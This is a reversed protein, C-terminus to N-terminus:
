GCLPSWRWGTRRRRRPSCGDPGGFRVARHRGPGPRRHVPVGGGPGGPAPDAGAGEAGPRHVGRLLGGGRHVRCLLRQGGPGPGPPDPRGPFRLLLGGGHGPLDRVAFLAGAAKKGAGPGGSPRRGQGPGGPRHRVAEDRQRRHADCRHGPRQPRGPRVGGAPGPLRGGRLGHPDAQGRRHAKERRSRGGKPLRGGGAQHLQVGTHARGAPAWGAPAHGEGDRLFVAGAGAARRRGPGEGGPRGADAPHDGDQRERGPGACIAARREGRRELRRGNYWM